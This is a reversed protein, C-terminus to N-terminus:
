EVSISQIAKEIAKNLFRNLPLQTKFIRALNEFLKESTWFSDDVTHIVAYHKNKLLEMDEFDKPFDRPGRKLREGYIGNFYKKFAAARIIKKYEGTKQYIATRIAKLHKSGPMYAGGGVFSENPELHVYFGAFPSKRGGRAIVAGFNTKYPSKDKSFRIDRYIRFTCERASLVDVDPDVDRAVFILADVFQEFERRAEDYLPKNAKFWTRDNNERLRALFDMSTQLNM